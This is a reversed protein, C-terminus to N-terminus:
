GWIIAEIGTLPVNHEGLIDAVDKEVNIEIWGELQDIIIPAQEEWNKQVGLDYLVKRGMKENEILFSFSPSVLATHGKIKPEFMDGTPMHMRLTTDIVSVRVTNSSAPIHLEPVHGVNTPSSDQQSM